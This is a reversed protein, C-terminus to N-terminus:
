RREGAEDLGNSEDDLDDVAEWVRHGEAAEPESVDDPHDLLREADDDVPDLTEVPQDAYDGEDPDHTTTM